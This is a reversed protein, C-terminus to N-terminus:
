EGKLENIVDLVEYYVRNIQKIDSLIEEYLKIIEINEEIEDLYKQKIKNIDTTSKENEIDTNPKYAVLDNFDTIDKENTTHETENTTEIEIETKTEYEIQNKTEELSDFYTKLKILVPKSPAAYAKRMIRSVSGLCVGTKEVVDNYQLGHEKLISKFDINNYWELLEPNACRRGQKNRAIARKKPEQVNLENTFFMYLRNKFDYPAQVDHKIYKSFLSSDISMLKELELYTNINFEKMKLKINLVGNTKQKLNDYFENVIKDYQLKELDHMPQGRNIIENFKDILNKPM